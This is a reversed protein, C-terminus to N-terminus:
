VVSKRDAANKCSMKKRLARVSQVTSAKPADLIAFVYKRGECYAMLASNVAESTEGPICLLNLDDATDLKALIGTYDTDTVEDGDDGNEFSIPSGESTASLSGSVAEVYNSRFNVSAIWFDESDTDNSLHDIVEVVEDNLSVRIDFYNADDENVVISVKLGNGWSGEDKANFLPPTGEVGSNNSSAKHANNAVRMVYCRKGGNQFFGYVSYALYSTNLFPSNMGLAFNTIFSNWSTIYVPKGVKGREAVGIFGGTSSSVAEIVPLGPNDEVYVGPSLYESM